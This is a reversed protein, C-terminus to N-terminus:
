PPTSTPDCSTTPTERYPASGDPPPQMAGGPCRTAKRTQLGALRDTAGTYTLVEGGPTESFQFANFLPQIRAYHGNADYTPGGEGFAQFWGVLDPAYPRASELIPQADKLAQISRPFV